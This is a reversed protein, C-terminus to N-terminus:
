APEPLDQIADSAPFHKWDHTEPRYYRRGHLQELGLGYMHFNLVPTEGHIHISHLDEPMLAVGQGQKVLVQGREQVGGEAHDYLRNLEEGEIGVIVAWTTHDHAPSDTGGTSMQAYLAFRNDDDEHLRYLANNRKSGPAPPPFDELPFLERKAALDVLVAKIDELSRRTVGQATEIARIRMVAEQVAQKRADSRAMADM